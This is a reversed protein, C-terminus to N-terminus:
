SGRGGAWWRSEGQYRASNRWEEESELCIESLFSWGRKSMAYIEKWNRWYKKFNQNRKKKERLIEMINLFNSHLKELIKGSIKSSKQLKTLAFYLPVDWQSLISCGKWCLNRCYQVTHSTAPSFFQHLLLDCDASIALCRNCGTNGSQKRLFGNKQFIFIRIFGYM